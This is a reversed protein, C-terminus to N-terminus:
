KEELTLYVSPDVSVNNKTIEFHLHAGDKYEDGTAEAVTAIVQGKTVSDGVKLGEKETVFRYVSRVGDAHAIVIQTGSLLDDKYISEVTGDEVALVETGTEAAFDVGVHEYYCNLTKNHYFGYDNLVSVTKVPVTMGEPTVIVQEGDNDGADGQEGGVSSDPLPASSSVNNGGAQNDPKEVNSIAVAVIIIATLAAACGLATILYFRKEKNMRSKRKTTQKENQEKM